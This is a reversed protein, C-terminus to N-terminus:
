AVVNVERWSPLQRLRNYEDEIEQVQAKFKTFMSATVPHHLIVTGSLTKCRSLAVYFLGRAFNDHRGAPPSLFHQQTDVGQSGHVTGTTALELPIQERSYKLGNFLVRCFSSYVPVVREHTSVCSDGSYYKADFQVLVLPIQTQVEAALIEDMDAGPQVPGRDPESCYCFAVVTGMAGPVLGAYFGLKCTLRVRSGIACTFCPSLMGRDINTKNVRKGNSFLPDHLLLAQRVGLDLGLGDRICRARGPADGDPLEDIDEQVPASESQDRESLNHKRQRKQARGSNPNANDKGDTILRYHRHAVNVTFIQEHM